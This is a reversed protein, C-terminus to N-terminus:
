PQWCYCPAFGHLFRHSKRGPVCGITRETNFDNFVHVPPHIKVTITGTNASCSPDEIDGCDINKCHQVTNTVISLPMGAGDMFLGSPVNQMLAPTVNIRAIKYVDQAGKGEFLDLHASSHAEVRLHLANMENDNCNAVAERIRNNAARFDFSVIADINTKATKPYLDAYIQAAHVHFRKFGSRPVQKAKHDAIEQENTM